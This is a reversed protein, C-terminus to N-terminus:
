LELIAVDKSAGRRLRWASRRGPRSQLFCEGRVLHLVPLFRHHGAGARARRAGRFPKGAKRVGACRELFVVEGCASCLHGLEDNLMAYLFGLCTTCLEVFGGRRPIWLVISLFTPARHVHRARLLPAIVSCKGVQAQASCIVPQQSFTDNALERRRVQRLVRFCSFVSGLERLPPRRKYPRSSWSM